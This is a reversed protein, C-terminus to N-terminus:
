LETNRYDGEMSALYKATDKQQTLVVRTNGIVKIWIESMVSTSEGCSNVKIWIESM